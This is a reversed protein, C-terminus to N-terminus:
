GRYGVFWVFICRLLTDREKLDVRGFAVFDGNTVYYIFMNDGILGHM